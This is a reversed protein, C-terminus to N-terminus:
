ISKRKIDRYQPPNEFTFLVVEEGTSKSIDHHLSVIKVGTVDYVLPAM